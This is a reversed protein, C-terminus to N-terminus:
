GIALSSLSVSNRPPQPPCPLDLPSLLSHAGACACPPPPGPFPGSSGASFSAPPLRQRLASPPTKHPWPCVTGLPPHCPKGELYNRAIFKLIEDLVIVPFSIKLVMLWHTLDLAQLKFIMQPPPPSSLRLHHPGTDREPLSPWSGPPSSGPRVGEEPLAGAQLPEGLTSFPPDAWFLSVPLPDVYLILFHLSMSLCISGLLWINVWPPM